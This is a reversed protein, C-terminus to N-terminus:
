QASSCCCLDPVCNGACGPVFSQETGPHTELFRTFTPLKEIYMIEELLSNSTGPSVYFHFAIGYRIKGGPFICRRRL